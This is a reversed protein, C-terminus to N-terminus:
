IGSDMLDETQQNERDYLSQKVTDIAQQVVQEIEETRPQLIQEWVTTDNVAVQIWSGWSPNAKETIVIMYDANSIPPADWFLVFYEYFEYGIKTMTEEIILGTIELMLEKEAAIERVSAPRETMSRILLSDTQSTQSNKGTEKDKATETIPYLPRSVEKILPEQLVPDRDQQSSTTNQTCGAMLIFLFGSLRLTRM